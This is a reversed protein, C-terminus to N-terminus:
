LRKRRREEALVHAKHKLAQILNLSDLHSPKLVDHLLLHSIPGKTWDLAILLALLPNDERKALKGVLLKGPCYLRSYLGFIPRNYSDKQIQWQSIPSKRCSRQKKIQKRAPCYVTWDRLTARHETIFLKKYATFDKRMDWRSLKGTFFVGKVSSFFQPWDLTSLKLESLNAKQKRKRAQSPRRTNIRRKVKSCLSKRCLGQSQVCVKLKNVGIWDKRM